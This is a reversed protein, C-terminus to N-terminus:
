KKEYKAIGEKYINGGYCDLAVIAPFDKVTLKRIAEAGLEEYAVLENGVISKAILAAAGGVAAFYVAKKEKLKAVVEPGMEGKGIMGKLGVEILRPSYANMRSSTTPGASGIVKGPKSPSPGVFYIIQGAPDFPLKEKKDILEVLRKHAADRATYIHGSILVEDGIKLDAVAADTLPTAIKKKTSM